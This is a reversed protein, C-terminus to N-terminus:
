DQPAPPFIGDLLAMATRHVMRFGLDFGDPGGHYPDPVDLNGPSAAHPNTDPLAQPDFTRFLMSKHAPGGARLIGALNHSDMALLLDFRHFDSAPDLMRARSRLTIGNRRAVDITRPDPLEGIHWSGTGCSEITLRDRVGRRDALHELVGQALPSRCINGLCVFLVSRVHRIEPRPVSM